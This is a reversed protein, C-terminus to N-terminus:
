IEGGFIDSYNKQESERESRRQRIVSLICYIATRILLAGGYMVTMWPYIVRPTIFWGCIFTIVAATLASMWVFSGVIKFCGGYSKEWGDKVAKGAGWMVLALILPMFILMPLQSMAGVFYSTFTYGATDYYVEKIFSHIDDIEGDACKNFYGGFVAAVGGDTRFSGAIMNDFVYLYYAKGGSIYNRYYFDRLVPAKAGSMASAVSSYYHKVYLYYLKTGYDSASKDLAEYEKKADEDASLFSEYSLIKEDTIELAVDTYRTQIKYEEKEKGSLDLYEEYSIESEGKVAVQTFEILTDSPRTDVILNYGNIFYSKDEEFSNIKQASCARKDKIEVTVRSFAEAVFQKYSGAGDYKSAFPAVDAGYYGCLLFIFSILLAFAISVFGRKVAESAIKDSFFSLGFFKLWSKM